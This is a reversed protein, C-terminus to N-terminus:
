SKLALRRRCRGKRHEIIYAPPPFTLGWPFRPARAPLRAGNKQPFNSFNERSNCTKTCCPAFIRPHKTFNHNCLLFYALITTLSHLPPFPSHLFGRLESQVLPFHAVADLHLVEVPVVGSDLRRQCLAVALKVRGAVGPVTFGRFRPCKRCLGHQYDDDSLADRNQDPTKGDSGCM